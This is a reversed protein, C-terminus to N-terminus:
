SKEGRAIAQARVSRGRSDLTPANTGFALPSAQRVRMANPVFAAVLMSAQRVRMANPVFAAVLM